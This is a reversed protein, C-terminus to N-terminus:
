SVELEDTDTVRTALRHLGRHSLVRVAGRRKGVIAAVHGIELGGIARLAVVEAQDPPLSAILRIARETAIREDVQEAVDDPGAVDAMGHDGTTAPRRRRSRQLDIHRRRAITFLWRRFGPEDGDFRQLGRVVDLWTEAAVDDASSGAVVRLYRVLMPQYARWLRAFADDDGRQAKSLAVDFDAADVDNV